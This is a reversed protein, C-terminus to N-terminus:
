LSLFRWCLTSYFHHFYASRGKKENKPLFHETNWGRFIVYSTPNKYIGKKLNLVNELLGLQPLDLFGISLITFLLIYGFLRFSSPLQPPPSFPVLFM